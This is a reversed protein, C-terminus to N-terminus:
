IIVWGFTNAAVTCAVITMSQYQTTWAFTGSGDITDSGDADLTLTNAASMKKIQCKHGAVLRAPPLTITVNGGSTTVLLVDDGETLRTNASVFRVRTEQLRAVMDRLRLDDTEKTAREM